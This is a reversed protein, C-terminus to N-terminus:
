IYIYVTYLSLTVSEIFLSDRMEVGSMHTWCKSWFNFLYILLFYIWVFAFEFWYAADFDVCVCVCLLGMEGFNNFM